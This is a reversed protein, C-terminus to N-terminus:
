KQTKDTKKIDVHYKCTGHTSQKISVKKITV